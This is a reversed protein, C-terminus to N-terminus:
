VWALYFPYVAFRKAIHMLMFFSGVFGLCVFSSSWSFRFATEAFLCM